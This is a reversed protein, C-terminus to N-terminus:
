MELKPRDYQCFECNFKNKEDMHHHSSSTKEWDESNFDPGFTDGEIEAEIETVYLKDLYPMALNYIVEGGTIFAEEECHDFAINLAEELSHVVIAGKAKYDSNRTIVINTRGKLAKGLAEFSKRGMIIHHGMTTNMFYKLDVPLHWPMKNDKGIVNNKSRAFIASITM